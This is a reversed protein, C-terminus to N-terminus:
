EITIKTAYVKIKVLLNSLSARPYKGIEIIKGPVWCQQFNDNIIKMGITTSKTVFSMQSAKVQVM